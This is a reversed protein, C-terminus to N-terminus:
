GGLAAAGMQALLAAPWRGGCFVRDETIRDTAPDVTLVHLHHAAHPIGREEWCLTYEVVEGAPLPHRRLEEFTGPDAFWGCYNAAIATAGDATFRWGPVTADLHADDAYIGSSTAFAASTIADLLRDVATSTTTTSM